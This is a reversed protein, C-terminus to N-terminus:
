SPLSSSRDPPDVAIPRINTHNSRIERYIRANAGFHLLLGVEFNTAKLYNCLQHRAYQPLEAGAKAEIIVKGDVIMDIRQNSLVEGKYIVQVSVERAVQHGRAILERELAMVYIHELFGFGLTNYVTFFAGIISRTIEEELLGIM